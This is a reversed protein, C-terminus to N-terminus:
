VAHTPEKQPEEPKPLPRISNASCWEWLFGVAYAAYACIYVWHGKLANALMHFAHRGIRYRLPRHEAFQGVHGDPTEVLWESFWRACFASQRGNRFFQRVLGAFTAPPLHAYDAGPVVVVRFGARRFLRRLYPDLGRPMLENEGGVRVFADRRMMLLPHEALDSDTVAAVDPTSRRPLEAMARKVFAPADAPIRNIGGAMGITEDAQMVDLLRQIAERSLLRTDDDLTLLFRGRALDAGTNIARGQRSDGAVVITEFQRCTQRTLQNLLAPLYGNRHGDATPIIVTLLPRGAAGRQRPSIVEIANACPRAADNRHRVFSRARSTASM